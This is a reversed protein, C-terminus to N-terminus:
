VVGGIPEDCFDGMPQAIRSGITGSRPATSEKAFSTKNIYDKEIM